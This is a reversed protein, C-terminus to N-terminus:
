SSAGRLTSTALLRELADICAHRDFSDHYATLVLLGYLTAVLIHALTKAEKPKMDAGLLNAFGTIHRIDTAALIERIAPMTVAEGMMVIDGNLRQRGNDHDLFQNMMTRLVDCSAKHAPDGAEVARHAKTFTTDQEPRPQEAIARIIQEKSAFHCYLGGISVGAEKCIDRMSTARIGERAFCTVAAILLADRREAMKEASLAPM